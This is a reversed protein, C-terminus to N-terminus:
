KEDATVTLNTLKYKLNSSFEGESNIFTFAADSNDTCFRTFACDREKADFLITKNRSEAKALAEAIRTKDIAKFAIESSVGIM